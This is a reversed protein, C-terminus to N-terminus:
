ASFNSLLYTFLFCYAEYQGDIKSNYYEKQMAIDQTTFNGLEQQFSRLLKMRISTLEPNNLGLITNIEYNLQNKNQANDSAQITGDDLFDFLEIINDDGLYFSIIERNSKTNNCHKGDNILLTAGTNLKTNLNISHQEQKGDSEVLLFINNIDIGYKKAIGLPTESPKVAHLRPTACSAFLNEVEFMLSVYFPNSKPYFHEIEMGELAIRGGCYCCIAGQYDFLHKKLQNFVGKYRMKRWFSDPKQESNGNRYAVFFKNLNTQRTVYEELQPLQTNKITQM